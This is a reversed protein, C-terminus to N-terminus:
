KKVKRILEAWVDIVRLKPETEKRKEYAEKVANVLDCPVRTSQCEYIIKAM